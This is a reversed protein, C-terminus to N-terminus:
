NQNRFAAIWESAAAAAAGSKGKGERRCAIVGESNLERRGCIHLLAIGKRSRFRDRVNKEGDEEKTRGEKKEEKHDLDM